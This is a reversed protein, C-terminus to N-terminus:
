RCYTTMAPHSSRPDVILTRISVVDTFDETYTDNDQYWAKYDECERGLYFYLKSFNEKLTIQVTPLTRAQVQPLQFIAPVNTGSASFQSQDPPMANWLDWDQSPDTQPSTHHDINMKELSAQFPVTESLKENPQRAEGGDLLQEFLMDYDIEEM